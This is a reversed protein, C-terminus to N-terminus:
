YNFQYSEHVKSSGLERIEASINKVINKIINKFISMFLLLILNNTLEVQSIVYEPKM